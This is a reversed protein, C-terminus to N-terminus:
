VVRFITANPGLPLGLTIWVIMMVTWGILFTITYPLMMATLTGM